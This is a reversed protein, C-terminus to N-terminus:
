PTPRVIGAPGAPAADPRQTAATEAKRTLTRALAERQALEGSLGVEQATLVVLQGSASLAEAINQRTQMDLMALVAKTSDPDRNKFVDALQDIQTHRLALVGPAGARVGGPGALAAGATGAEGGMGGPRVVAIPAADDHVSYTFSASHFNVGLAMGAEGQEDGDAEAQRLRKVASEEVDHLASRLEEDRRMGIEARFASQIRTELALAFDQVFYVFRLKERSLSFQVRTEVVMRHGDVTNALFPLPVCYQPRLNVAGTRANLLPTLNRQGSTPDISVFGIKPANPGKVIFEEIDWMVGRGSLARKFGRENHTMYTLDSRAWYFKWIVYALTAAAIFLGAAIGGIQVITM